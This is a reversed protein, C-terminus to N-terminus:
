KSEIRKTEDQESQAHILRARLEDKLEDLTLNAAAEELDFNMKDISALVRAASTIDRPEVESSSVIAILKMVIQARAEAPIPWRERVARGVMKIDRRYEIIERM